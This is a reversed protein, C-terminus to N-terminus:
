LERWKRTSACFGQHLKYEVAFSLCCMLLCSPPERNHSSGCLFYFPSPHYHSPLPIPHPHQLTPHDPFMEGGPPQRALHITLSVCPLIMCPRPAVSPLKSKTRHSLQLTKPLTHPHHSKSKKCPSSQSKRPLNSTLLLPWLFM